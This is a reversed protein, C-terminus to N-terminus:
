LRGAEGRGVHHTSKALSNMQELISRATRLFDRGAMTARVGGSSREFVTMGLSHELQSICRSLTSQRLLLVESARRFSGHGAAAM